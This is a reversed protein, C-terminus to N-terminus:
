FQFYFFDKQAGAFEVIGLVVLLGLAPLLWNEIRRLPRFFDPRQEVWSFLVVGLVAPLIVEQNGLHRLGEGSFYAGVDFLRGMLRLSWVLSDFADAGPGLRGPAPAFFLAASMLIIMWSITVRLGRVPLSKPWDLFGRRELFGEVALAVGMFVGWAVFTYSAGHWLGALFFTFILNAYARWEAVRSGGLPFFIYDRIWFSFTLHWRRWFESVSHAFLPARFNIPIEFGLLLGFGRAMDSYASFDCYLFSFACFLCLWLDLPGFQLLTAQGSAFVPAIVKMLNDAILVKKVIGILVLWLGKKMRLADAREAGTRGYDSIQPLLEDSRMIPGAILQPFFSKFLVVDLFSHRRTYTGRYIDIGYAMIQFTYFSIALPLFIEQGLARHSNLLNPQRWDSVGGLFGLFDAFFYFYKFLAINLVNGIQLASFLWKWRFRRWVEMVAYNVAIVALFHLTFPISWSAYFVLSAVLLLPMRLGPPSVWFLVYVVLFFVLFTESVFLM